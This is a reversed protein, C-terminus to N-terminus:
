DDREGEETIRAIDDAYQQEWGVFTEYDPARETWDTFSADAEHHVIGYAFYGITVFGVVNLLLYGVAPSLLPPEIAFGGQVALGLIEIAYLWLGFVGFTYFFGLYGFHQATHHIDHVPPTNGSRLWGEWSLCVEGLERNLKTELFHLYEGARMMRTQEVVWLAITIMIIPPISAIILKFMPQETALEPLVGSFQLGYVIGVVVAGSLIIQNQFHISQTIEKRLRGYQERMTEVRLESLEDGPSPDEDFAGPVSSVSSPDGSPEGEEDPSSRDDTM